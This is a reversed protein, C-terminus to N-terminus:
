SKKSLSHNWLRQLKLYFGQDTETLRHCTMCLDMLNTKDKVREPAESRRVVHHAEIFEVTSPKLCYWCERTQDFQM